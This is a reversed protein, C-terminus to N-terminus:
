SVQLLLDAVPGFPVTNACFLLSCPPECLLKCRDGMAPWKLMLNTTDGIVYAALAQIALPPDWLTLLPVLYHLVSAPNTAESVFVLFDDAPAFMAQTGMVADVAWPGESFKQSAM